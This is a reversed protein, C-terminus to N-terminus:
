IAFLSTANQTTTQAVRELPVDRIGSLFKAIIKLNAPENRQGRKPEPSLLPSDTELIIRELPILKAVKQLGTDYTLNGDIGFYFGTPIVRQIGKKGASYCHFVGTISNNVMPKHHDIFQEVIQITERFAKRTHIIIPLKRKQALQIQKQFLFYQDELSRDKEGPPAPSFDLGCEGIAVVEKCNALQDLREIQKELPLTNEPDTQQPHIGVAAWVIGPYKRTIEIAKQSDELNSSACITKRVGNKAAERIVQDLDKQYDPFNLHAHTDVLM